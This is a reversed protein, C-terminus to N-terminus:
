PLYETVLIEVEEFNPNTGGNTLLANKILTRAAARNGPGVVLLNPRVGLPNGEDSKLLMMKTVAADFNTANLENLSGHALQWLGFGPVVRTDVGFVFEDKMFVHEDSPSTFSQFTYPKRKQFIMPKLPRKTDMLVWLDGGGTADYNDKTTEVGDEIVPHDTDFFFQGDYCLESAGLALLEFVLQDPHVKASYGMESVIPGYVGYTDDEMSPKPVGVTSEFKKNPLTYNHSALNKILRDGIWERLRPFQGLFAYLNAETTSPVSTAVREWNSEAGKFASQFLANYAKFLASINAKNIIM